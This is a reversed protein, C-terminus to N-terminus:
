GEPPELREDPWRGDGAAEPDRGPLGPHRGGQLASFEEARSALDVETVLITASGVGRNGLHEQAALPLGGDVAAAFEGVQDRTGHGLLEAGPHSPLSTGQPGRFGSLKVVSQVGPARNPRAVRFAQLILIPAEAGQGDERARVHAGTTHHGQHAPPSSPLLAQHDDQVIEEM